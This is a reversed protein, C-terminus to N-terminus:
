WPHGAALHLPQQGDKIASRAEAGRRALHEAITIHGARSAVFLATWGTDPTQVQLGAAASSSDAAAATAEAFEKSYVGRRALRVLEPWHETHGQSGVGLVMPDLNCTAHDEGEGFYVVEGPSQVCFAVGLPKPRGSQM